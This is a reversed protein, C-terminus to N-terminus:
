SRALPRPVMLAASNTGSSAAAADLQAARRAYRAPCLLPVRGTYRRGRAGEAAGVGVAGGHRDDSTAGPGDAMWCVWGSDSHALGVGDVGGSVHQRPAIDLGVRAGVAARAAPRGRFGRDAQASLVSSRSDNHLWWSGGHFHFSGTSRSVGRDTLLGVARGPRPARRRAAGVATPDRRPQGAGSGKGADSRESLGTEMPQM